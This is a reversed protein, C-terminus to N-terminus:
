TKKLTEWINKSLISYIEELEADSTLMRRHRAQTQVDGRVAPGTQTGTPSASAIAKAATEAILPKLIDFPLGAKTVIKEGVTYMYNVFNCAFVGSLHVKSRLDSDAYIVTHSIKHAFIEIDRRLEETASEIFIPIQSFDVERGKTFTQLPYFVGRRLFKSPIANLSVSGATHMVIASVPIPLTSALESVASDSVALIYVDAAALEAPNDSWLTHTMDALRRGHQINRAFIQCLLLDSKDIAKALAEALNGSGIIVVRNM